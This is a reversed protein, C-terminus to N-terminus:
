RRRRWRDIAEAVGHNDNSAVAGHRAKLEVPGNDVVFSTAAWDLLDVDNWDNGVALTDDADIGHRRAIAQCGAAKSVGPAFVEVWVSAHDLPSTTRVVNFGPLAEVLTDFMAVGGREPHVVVFQSAEGPEARLPTAHARYASLRAEFDTNGRSSRHYRFVHSGPAPSQVMFDCDLLRLTDAVVSTREADLGHAAILEGDPWSVTGAGSSFVLYDIPTGADIARHASFLSRGTAVVRVIGERGLAELAARNVESLARANDLLTGDLDTNLM